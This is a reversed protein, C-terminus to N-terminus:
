EVTIKGFNNATLHDHFGWEGIKTFTFSWSQGAAISQCADFDNNEADPCHAQLNTGSYIMHTPHMASAPWMGKASNNKFSVTDGVKIIVASPSYGSDSYVIEHIKPVPTTEIEVVPTTNNQNSTTNAENSTAQNQSWVWWAGLIIVIIVVVVGIITTNKSM